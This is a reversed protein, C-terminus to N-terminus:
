QVEPSSRKNFRPFIEGAKGEHSYRCNDGNVCSGVLMWNNCPNKTVMHVSPNPDPPDASPKSNPNPNSNARAKKKEEEKKKKKEEDRKRIVEDNKREAVRDREEVNIRNAYERLEDYWDSWSNYKKSDRMSEIKGKAVKKCLLQLSHMIMDDKPRRGDAIFYDLADRWKNLKNFLTLENTCKLTASTDPSLFQIYDITVVGVSVQLSPTMLEYVMHLGSEGTAIGDPM